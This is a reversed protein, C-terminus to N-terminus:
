PTSKNRGLVKMKDHYDITNFGNKRWGEIGNSLHSVNKFGLQNILANGLVNTRNGTRCYLVIPTKESIAVSSFKSQFEPHISGNKQFATILKAGDIIGTDLWEEARRIDIIIAGNQKAEILQKETLTKLQNYNNALSLSSINIVAFLALVSVILFRMIHSM